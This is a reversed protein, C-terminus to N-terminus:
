ENKVEHSCFLIEKGLGKRFRSVSHIIITPQTKNFLNNWFRRNPRVKGNYKQKCSEELNIIDNKRLRVVQQGVKQSSVNYFGTVDIVQFSNDKDLYIQGVDEVSVPSRNYPNHLIENKKKVICGMFIKRVEGSEPIIICCYPNQQLSLKTVDLEWELGMNEIIEDVFKFNYDDFYMVGKINLITGLLRYYGIFQSPGMGDPMIEGYKEYQIWDTIKTNNM